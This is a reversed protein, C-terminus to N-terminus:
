KILIGFGTAHVDPIDHVTNGSPALINAMETRVRDMEADLHWDDFVILGGQRVFPNWSHYNAMTLNYDHNADIFLLDIPAGDYLGDGVYSASNYVVSHVNTLFPPTGDVQRKADPNIDITLVHAQPAALAMYKTSEGIYTGLEVIRTPYLAEALLYLYSHYKTGPEAIRIGPIDEMDMAKKGLELLHEKTLQNM